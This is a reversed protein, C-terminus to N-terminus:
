LYHGFFKPGLNDGANAGLRLQLNRSGTIGRFIQHDAIKTLSNFALIFVQNM